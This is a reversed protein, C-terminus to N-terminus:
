NLLVESYEEDSDYEEIQKQQVSSQQFNQLWWLIHVDM